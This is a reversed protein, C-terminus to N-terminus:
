PTVRAIAAGWNVFATRPELAAATSNTPGSATGGATVAASFSRGGLATVPVTRQAAAPISLAAAAMGILCVYKTM